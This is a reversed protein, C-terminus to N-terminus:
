LPSQRSSPSAYKAGAIHRGSLPLAKLMAFHEADRATNYAGIFLSIVLTGGIATVLLQSAGIAEPASGADVSTSFYIFLLPMLYYPLLAAIEKFNRTTLRLDKEMLSGIPHRVRGDATRHKRVTRGGAEWGRSLARVSILEAAKFALVAAAILLLVALSGSLVEYDYLFGSFSVPMDSLRATMGTFADGILFLVLYVLIFSIAGLFSLIESIKRIPLINATLFIFAYALSVIFISLVSFYVLSDALLMWQGFRMSLATGLVAGLPLLISAAYILVHKIFKAFFLELLQYPFHCICSCM